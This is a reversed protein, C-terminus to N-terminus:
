EFTPGRGKFQAMRKFVEDGDHFAKPINKRGLRKLNLQNLVAVVQPMKREDNSLTLDIGKESSKEGRGTLIYPNPSGFRTKYKLLKNFRKMTIHGTGGADFYRFLRDIEDTTTEM